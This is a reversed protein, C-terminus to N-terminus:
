RDFNVAWGDVIGAWWEVLKKRQDIYLAKNYVGRVGSIEHALQTEISDIGWLGSEHAVTSFVKRVGHVTMRGQFGCCKISYHLLWPDIASDDGSRPSPFVFRSNQNQKKHNRLLQVAQPPLPCLHPKKTKMREAPISWLGADLDFESWQALLVESRRKATYFLLMWAVRTNGTMTAHTQLADFFTRMEKQELFVYGNCKHAKLAKGLSTAPNLECYDSAIAYSFVADIRGRLRKAQHTRGNAESARCIALVHSPKIDSLLMNGIAPYIKEAFIKAHDTQTKSAWRDKNLELWEAAAIKFLM